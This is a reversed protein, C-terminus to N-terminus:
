TGFILIEVDCASTNAVLVLDGAVVINDSLVMTGGARIRSKNKREFSITVVDNADATLTSEDVVTIVSAATTRVLWPGANGATATSSLRVYGGVELGTTVYLGGASDDTITDGTAAQAFTVTDSLSGRQQWWEVEVYNATDKNKVVISEITSFGSLDITTGTTTASVYHQELKTATSSTQSFSRYAIPDSYDSNESYLAGINLRAYDAM